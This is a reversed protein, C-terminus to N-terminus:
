FESALKDLGMVHALSRVENKQEDNFSMILPIAASKLGQLEASDADLAAVEASAPAGPRSETRAKAYAVNRLAAEVAPWMREQDPTLHLREKISAIQADNLMSGPRGAHRAAREAAAPKAAPRPAAAAPKIQTRTEAPTERQQPLPAAVSESPPPTVAQRPSVVPVMPEPDLLALQANKLVAVTVSGTPADAADDAVAIDAAKAEPFRLAVTQSPTVDTSGITISRVTAAHWNGVVYGIFGAVLLSLWRGRKGARDRRM